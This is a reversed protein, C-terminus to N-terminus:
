KREFHPHDKKFSETSTWHGFNSTPPPNEKGNTDETLTWCRTDAWQSSPRSWVQKVRKVGGSMVELYSDFEWGHCTDIATKM